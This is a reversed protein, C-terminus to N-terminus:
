IPDEETDSDIFRLVRLFLEEGDESEFFFGADDEVVSYACGTPLPLISHLQTQPHPGTSNLQPAALVVPSPPAEPSPVQQVTVPTQLCLVGILVMLAAIAVGAPVLRRRWVTGSSRNSRLRKSEHRVRTKLRVLLRSELPAPHFASSLQQQLQVETRSAQQVERMACLLRSRLAPPLEAAPTRTFQPRATHPPM